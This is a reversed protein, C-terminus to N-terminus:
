THFHTITGGFKAHDAYMITAAHKVGHHALHTHSKIGRSFPLVCVEPAILTSANHNLHKMAKRSFKTNPANM